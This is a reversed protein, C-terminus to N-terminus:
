NADSLARLAVLHDLAQSIGDRVDDTYISIGQAPIEIKFGGDYPQVTVQKKRTFMAHLAAQENTAMQTDEQDALNSLVDAVATTDPDGYARLGENVDKSLELMERYPLTSLIAKVRRNM